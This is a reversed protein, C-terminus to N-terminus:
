NLNTEIYNSLDSSSCYTVAGDLCSQPCTNGPCVSTCPTTCAQDQIDNMSTTVDSTTTTIATSLSSVSNNISTDISVVLDLNAGTLPCPWTESSNIANACETSKTTAVWYKNTEADKYLLRKYTTSTCAPLSPDITSTAISILLGSYTGNVLLGAPDLLTIDIPALPSYSAGTCTLSTGLSINSAANLACATADAEDPVQNNNKDCSMNLTGDANVLNPIVMKMLVLGKIMDVLSIYFKADHYTDATAPVSNYETRSNDIFTLTNEDVNGILATMYVTLDSTTTSTNSNNSGNNTESFRNIVNAIDFGAKGFYAAGRQMADACGSSLVADYNGQDLNMTTEHQCAEDSSKKSCGLFLLSVSAALLIYTKLKNM